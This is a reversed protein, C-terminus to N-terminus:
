RMARTAGGPPPVADEPGTLTVRGLPTGMFRSGVERFRGPSDSVLFEHQPPAESKRLLGRETLLGEIEAATEAGSDVLAVNPGLAEAVLPRLIPYHTCGLIAVDVQIERLPALYHEAILRAAEHGEFGEEAIPVFLPCAQAYVRAGPVCARLGRDYVGSAITGVTGLV